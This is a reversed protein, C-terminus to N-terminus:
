GNRKNMWRCANVLIRIVNADHFVPYTEHGPRFYFVDGKGRHWVCGSRFVEGSEFSSIFILEDPAPVDFPESYMETQPIVTGNAVGAAIPHRPDVVWLRENRGDEKWHDMRCSTGMLRSFPKSFHASHLVILGMGACVRAAVREAIGDAVDRHARHGWWILVDTRELVDETLGHEPEDMTATQVDFDEEARLHEAMAAHMGDPYIARVDDDTKEQIFENWVTIQAQSM